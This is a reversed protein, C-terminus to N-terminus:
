KYPSQPLPTERTYDEIDEKNNIDDLLKENYIHETNNILPIIKYTPELRFGIYIESYSSLYDPMKHSFYIPIKYDQIGMDNLVNITESNILEKLIKM